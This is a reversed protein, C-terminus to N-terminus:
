VDVAVVETPKVVDTAVSMIARLMSMLVVRCEGIADKPLKLFSPNIDKLFRSPNCFEQKGYKYRNKAYSIFCNEEARTIAM